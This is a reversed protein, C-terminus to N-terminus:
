PVLVYPERGHVGDDASFYLRDRIFQLTKPAASLSGPMLETVQEFREGDTRWIEEGSTRTYGTFYLHTASGGEKALTMRELGAPQNRLPRTGAPTGDTRWLRTNLHFYVHGRWNTLTKAIRGDERPADSFLRQTGAGTGDTVWLGSTDDDAVLFVIRQSLSASDLLLPDGASALLGGVFALESAGSADARYLRAGSRRRILLAADDIAGAFLPFSPNVGPSLDAYAFTGQATGDSHWLTLPSGPTRAYFYFASESAQTRFSQGDGSQGIQVLDGVQGETVLIRGDFGVGIVRNGVAEGIAFGPRAIQTVQGDALRYMRSQERNSRAVTFVLGDAIPRVTRLRPFVTAGGTSPLGDFTAIATTTEPTGGTLWIASSTLASSDSVLAVGQAGADVMYVGSDSNSDQALNLLPRTTEVTGKTSWLEVGGEDSRGAFVWTAGWAVPRGSVGAQRVRTDPTIRQARIAGAQPLRWLHLTSDLSLAWIVPQGNVSAFAVGVGDFSLPEPTEIEDVAGTVIDARYLAFEDFQRFRCFYVFRGVRGLPWTLWEPRLTDAVLEPTDMGAELRFLQHGSAPTRAGFYFTPGVSVPAAPFSSAPGPMLDAVLSTGQPTGDTRWLEIGHENTRGSFYVRDKMVLRFAASSAILDPAGPVDFPEAGSADPHAVWLAGGATFLIADNVLLFSHPQSGDSGPGIDAVQFAHVDGDCYRWPEEGTVGDDAAFWVCRGYIQLSSTPTLTQSMGSQIKRTGVSTGDSIWVAHDRGDFAKFVVGGDFAQLDNIESSLAGPHIDAVLSAQRANIDLVMLESGAGPSQGAFYLRDGVAVPASRLGSRAQPETTIDALRQAGDLAAHSVGVWVLMLISLSFLRYSSRM